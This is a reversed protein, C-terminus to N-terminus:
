LITKRHGPSQTEMEITQLSLKGPFDKERWSLTSVLFALVVPLVPATVAQPGLCNSVQEQRSTKASQSGRGWTGLGAAPRPPGFSMSDADLRTNATKTIRSADPKEYGARAVRTPVNQWSDDGPHAAGAGGGAPGAKQSRRRHDDRDRDRDRRDDRRDRGPPPPGGVAQQLKQELQEKEIQKHIQDLTKPGAEERRKKWGNLKLDIM